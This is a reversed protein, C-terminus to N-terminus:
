SVYYISVEVNDKLKLKRSYQTPQVTVKVLTDDLDLVLTRKLGSSTMYKDEFSLYDSPYIVKFRSINNMIELVDEEYQRRFEFDKQVNHVYDNLELAEMMGTMMTPHKMDNESNPSDTKNSKNDFDM